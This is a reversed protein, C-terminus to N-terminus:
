PLDSDWYCNFGSILSNDNQGSAEQYGTPLCESTLFTREFSRFEYWM